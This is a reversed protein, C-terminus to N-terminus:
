HLPAEADKPGDEVAAAFAQLIKADEAACEGLKKAMADIMEEDGGISAILIGCVHTLRNMIKAKEHIGFRGGRLDLGELVSRAVKQCIELEKKGELKM